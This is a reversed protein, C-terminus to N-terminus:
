FSLLLALLIRYVIFAGSAIVGRVLTLKFFKVLIAGDILFIVPFAFWGFQESMFFLLSLDVTWLVAAALIILVVDDLADKQVVFLIVLLALADLGLALM